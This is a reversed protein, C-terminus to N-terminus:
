PCSAGFAETSKFDRDRSCNPLMSTVVSDFSGVWTQLVGEAM